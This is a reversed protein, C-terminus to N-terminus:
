ITVIKFWSGEIKVKREQVGDLTNKIFEKEEISERVGTTIRGSARVKEKERTAGQLKWMFGEPLENKYRKRIGEREKKRKSKSIVKGEKGM